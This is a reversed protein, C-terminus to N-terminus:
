IFNDVALTNLGVGNTVEFVYDEGAQYGNPGGDEVILYIHGALNGSDPAFVVARHSGLNPFVASMDADFTEISLAGTNVRANVANVTFPLDIFDSNTNFTVFLDCTPGTSGSATFFRFTDAGGAGSMEDYGFGGILIDDGGRGFLQDNGDDGTILDGLAGGAVVDDDLGAHIDFSADTEAEGNFFLIGGSLGEADVTFVEGAAVNADNMTLVYTHGAGLILAEMNSLSGAAFTLGGAYNGDLELTDTGNGGDIADLSDFGGGFAFSDDGAGSHVTIIGDTDASADFVLTEGADLSTGAVLLSQAAKVTKEHMTLSYSNGDALLVEEVNQVTDKKMLVGASYDGSLDLIDYDAGGDLTDDRDFGAIGNIFDSGAGMDVTDNGGADIEAYDDNRGALVVDDNVSDRFTIIGTRMASADFTISAGAQLVNGQVNLFAGDPITKRDISISYTFTSEFGIQEVDKMMSKTILLGASYDGSLYVVDNDGGGGDISDTTDFTTTFNFNDLGAGGVLTDSGAGPVFGNDANGGLVTDNGAGLSFTVRTDTERTADITVDNGVGLTSASVNFGTGANGDKLILNYDFGSSLRLREVSVFSNNHLETVASYDGTLRVEDIGAGGDIRDDRTFTAGFLVVDNDDLGFVEDNGGQTVDFNDIGSTGTLNDDGATGIFNAM